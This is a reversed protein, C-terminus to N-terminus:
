IYFLIGALGCSVFSVALAIPIIMWLLAAKAFNRRNLDYDGGFAWLILVIVNVLPISILLLTIFWDGVSQVRIEENM